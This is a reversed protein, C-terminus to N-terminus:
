QTFALTAATLPFVVAALLLQTACLIPVLVKVGVTVALSLCYSPVVEAVQELVTLKLPTTVPSVTVAVALVDPVKALLVTSFLLVTVQVPIM